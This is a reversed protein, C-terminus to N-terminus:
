LHGVAVTARASKQKPVLLAAGAHLVAAEAVSPVGVLRRVNHSPSPVVHRALAILSAAVLEASLDEALRRVAAEDAHRDLTVVKIVQQLDHEHCARDVLARLEDYSTKPRLGIGLVLRSV